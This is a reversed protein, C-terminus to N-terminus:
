EWWSVLTYGGGGTGSVIQEESLAVDRHINGSGTIKVEDGYFSGCLDGSGTLRILAAPAYVVGSFATSGTWKVDLCTSTGYLILDAPIGSSNFIGSGTMRFEGDSYFEVSGGGLINIVSSGTMKVSLSGTLYIRAPSWINLETSGTLKIQTFKYDGAPLTESNSGTLSISGGGPLGTLTEPVEQFPLVLNNGDTITGTITASGVTSVTGGPGTSADGYIISSGVMSIAGNQTGNTGADGDTGASWISYPGNGSDYSDIFASGTMRVETKGFVAFDLPFSSGSAPQFDAYVAHSSSGVVGTSAIRINEGLGPVVSSDQKVVTCTGGFMSLSTGTSTDMKSYFAAIGSRAIDLAQRREFDSVTNEVSAESIRDLNRGFIGMSILFGLVLIISAKGM